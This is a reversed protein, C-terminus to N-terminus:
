MITSLIKKVIVCRRVYLFIRSDAINIQATPFATFNQRANGKAFLKCIVVTYTNVFQDSVFM